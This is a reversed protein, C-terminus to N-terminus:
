VLSESVNTPDQIRRCCVPIEQHTTEQIPDLVVVVPDELAKLVLGIDLIVVDPHCQAGQTAEVVVLGPHGLAHAIPGVIDLALGLRGERQAEVEPAATLVTGVLVELDPDKM